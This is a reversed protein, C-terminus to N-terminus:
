RWTMACASLSTTQSFFTFIEEQEEEAYVSVEARGDLYGAM